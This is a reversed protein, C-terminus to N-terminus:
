QEQVRGLIRCYGLWNSGHRLWNAYLMQQLGLNYRSLALADRGYCVGCVEQMQNLRYQFSWAVVATSDSIGNVGTQALTTNLFPVFTHDLFYFTAAHAREDGLLALAPARNLQCLSPIMFTTEFAYAYARARTVLFEDRTVDQDESGPIIM